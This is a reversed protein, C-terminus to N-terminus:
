IVLFPAFWWLNDQGWWGRLSMAQNRLSSFLSFLGLFYFILARKNGVLKDVFEWRWIKGRKKETMWSGCCIKKFIWVSEESDSKSEIWWSSFSVVMGKWDWSLRSRNRREERGRRSGGILSRRSGVAREGLESSLGRRLNTPTEVLLSAWLRGIEGWSGVLMCWFGVKKLEHLLGSCLRLCWGVVFGLPFRQRGWLGRFSIGM